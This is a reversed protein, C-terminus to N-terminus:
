LSFRAALRRRDLKGRGNLPFDDLRVYKRPVMYAPLMKGLRREVEDHEAVAGVYFAVLHRDAGEGTALVAAKEIGQVRRLQYEIEAVEIRYGQIKVQQDVRGLFSLIGDPDERVRDGTRYWRGGEDNLFRGADDAPQLYGSFMQPGTVCLEGETAQGGSGEDLLLYDLGPFLKGIPVFGHAGEATSDASWHFASCAITLETPGYLNETRSQPAAIQWDAADVATLPEGCFLSWRLSPMGAPTLGSMRRALSIASPVSFWVTLRQSAVFKPLRRLASPPTHVLTGGCGWAVFLDFFALDFTLDFNQSFTDEVNFAYRDFISDLFHHMNAHTVPVGKPRGTSGSTFLIYANEASSASSGSSRDTPSLLRLNGCREDHQGPSFVPPLATGEDALKALARHGSVDAVIVDPDCEDIIAQLREGPWDPSLPVVTAGACLAALVGIYGELTRHSAVAVNRPAGGAAGARVVSAWQGALMRLEGYTLRLGGVRLAERGPHRAASRLVREELRM